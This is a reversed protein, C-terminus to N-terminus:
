ACSCALSLIFTSLFNVMILRTLNIVAYSNVLSAFLTGQSSPEGCVFGDNALNISSPMPVSPPAVGFVTGVMEVRAEMQGMDGATAAATKLDRVSSGAFVTGNGVDGPISKGDDLVANTASVLWERHRFGVFVRWSKLEELGNNLVRLTSEFRYPQEATDSVNPPLREGGTYTYSLFIGNCSDAAQPQSMSPTAAFIPLVVVAFFFCRRRSSVNSAMDVTVYKKFVSYNNM